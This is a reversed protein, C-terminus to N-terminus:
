ERRSLRLPGPRLGPPPTAQRVGPALIVVVRVHEVLAELTDGPDRDVSGLNTVGEPRQCDLLQEVRELTGVLVRVDADDQQGAGAVPREARAAVLPHPALAA